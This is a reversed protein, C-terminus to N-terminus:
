RWQSSFIQLLGTHRVIMVIMIVLVAMPVVMRRRLGIVLHVAIILDEAEGQLFQEDFLTDHAGVLHAGRDFLTVLDRWCM